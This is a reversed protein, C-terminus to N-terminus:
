FNMSSYIPYFTGQGLNETIEADKEFLAVLWELFFWSDEGVVKIEQESGDEGDRWEFSVDKGLGSSRSKLAGQKAKGRAKPTGFTQMIKSVYGERMVEWCNRASRLAQAQNYILSDVYEIDFQVGVGGARRQTDSDEPYHPLAAGLDSPLNTNVFSFLLRQASIIAASSLVLASKTQKVIKRPSQLLLTARDYTPDTGTDDL